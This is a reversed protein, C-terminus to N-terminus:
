QSLRLIESAIEYFATQLETADPAYVFTGAAYNSDYGYQDAPARPDNAVRELFQQETTGVGSGLGITFIVPQLTPDQRISIAQNVASNFSADVIDTGNFKLNSGSYGTTLNGFVDQSPISAIDPTSGGISNLGYKEFRCGTANYSSSIPSLSGGQNMGTYQSPDYIGYPSSGATTIAGTITGPIIGTGLPNTCSGSSNIPWNKSLITNPQGDTFLVIVNLAGQQNEQEMASYAVNLAQTTSTAGACQIQGIVSSLTPSSSKFYTNPAYDLNASSSFTVLGLTDFGDTFYNVFNQADTVLTGCSGSQSMSGSRDLVLILVLNRRSSQASASVTVHQFNNGLIRLFFLPAQVSAQVSTTLTKNDEAVNVTPGSVVKADLWGAPFNAPFWKEAVSQALAQEQTPDGSVNVSRGAALAAADVAASLKAKTWLAISGDIALGVMPIIVLFSCFTFLLVTAGRETSAQKRTRSPKPM